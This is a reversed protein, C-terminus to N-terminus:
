RGGVEDNLMAEAHLEKDAFVVKIFTGAPLDHDQRLRKAVNSADNFHAFQDIKALQRVPGTQSMRYVFYPM